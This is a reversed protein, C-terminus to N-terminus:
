NSKGIGQRTPHVLAIEDSYHGEMHARAKLRRRRQTSRALSMWIREDMLQNLRKNDQERGEEVRRDCSFHKEDRDPMWPVHRANKNRQLGINTVPPANSHKKKNDRCRTSLEPNTVAAYHQRSGVRQPIHYTLPDPWPTKLETSSLASTPLASTAATPKQRM